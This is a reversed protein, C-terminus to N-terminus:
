KRGCVGSYQCWVCKSVKDTQRFPVSANEIEELGTELFEKFNGYFEMDFAKILRFEKKLDFHYLATPIKKMSLEFLLAYFPMQVDSITEPRFGSGSKELTKFKYDIIEYDNERRDIRDIFGKLTRGAFSGKLSQETFAPEWGEKRRKIEEKELAKIAKEAESARFREVPSYRFADNKLMNKEYEERFIKEFEPAGPKIKKRHVQELAKHFANGIVQPTVKKEPEPASRVSAIYKFYFRLPCNIYDNFATASYSFGSLEKLIGDNKEVTIEGTKPFYFSKGKFLSIEEPAYTEERIGGHVAIEEAFRSRRRAGGGSSYSIVSCKAREMIQLLYNKMLNERDTFTPLELERRIETNLFMDKKNAPPFVDENMAPIFVVDFAMNRSELIGMVPIKGKPTRVRIQSLENLILSAAESFGIEEKIGGYVAILMDLRGCVLSLGEKERETLLPSLGSVFDKMIICVNKPAMKAAARRFPACFDKFFAGMRIEEAGSYLRGEKLAELYKEKLEAAGPVNKLLPQSLIKIVDAIEATGNESVGTKSATMCMTELLQFFQFSGINENSTIDFLNYPDLRLFYSKVSEDPIVVAMRRFSVGARESFDFALATILELQAAMGSCSYIRTNRGNFVPAPRDDLSIGLYKEYLEHHRHKKGAYNFLLLVDKEEGALKLQELEYKTLYGGILFVFSDYRSIFGKRFSPARYSEWEDSYGARKIENLYNQWLRELVTIQLEYDTYKGAKALADMDVMEASLERYFSFIGASVQAFAMFNDLFLTKESRFVAIKDDKSLAEAAKKLYFPRLQKPIHVGKFDTALQTFEKISFIEVTKFGANALLRVARSTPVVACVRDGDAKKLLEAAYSLPAQGLPIRLASIM